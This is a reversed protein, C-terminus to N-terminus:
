GMVAVPNLGSSKQSRPRPIEDSMGLDGLTFDVSPYRTMQVAIIHHGCNHRSETRERHLAGLTVVV